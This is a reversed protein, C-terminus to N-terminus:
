ESQFQESHPVLATDLVSVFHDLCIVSVSFTFSNVTRELPYTKKIIHIYLEMFLKVLIIYLYHNEYNKMLTMSKRLIWEQTISFNSFIIECKLVSIKRNLHSDEPNNHGTTQYFNVSTESTSVAEMILAVISAALV